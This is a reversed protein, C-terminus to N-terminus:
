YWFTQSGTCWYDSFDISVFTKPHMSVTTLMKQFWHSLMGECCTRWHLLLLQMSTQEIHGCVIYIHQVDVAKAALVEQHCEEVNM